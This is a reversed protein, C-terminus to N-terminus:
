VNVVTVVGYLATRRDGGSGLADLRYVRPYPETLATGPLYVEVTIEEATQATIVMEDANATSLTLGDADDACADDKLVFELSEVDDLGPGTITLEVTEDNGETVTIPANTAV